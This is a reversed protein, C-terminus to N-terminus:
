FEILVRLFGAPAKSVTNFLIKLTEPEQRKIKTIINSIEIMELEEDGESIVVILKKIKDKNKQYYEKFYAQRKAKNKRYYEKYYEKRLQKSLM